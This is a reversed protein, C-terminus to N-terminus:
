TEEERNNAEKDIGGRRPPDSEGRARNSDREREQTERERGRRQRDEKVRGM